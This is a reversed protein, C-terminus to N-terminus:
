GEGEMMEFASDILVWAMGAVAVTCVGVALIIAVARVIDSM